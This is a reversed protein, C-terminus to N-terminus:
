RGKPADGRAPVMRYTEETVLMMPKEGPLRLDNVSVLTFTTPGRGPVGDARRGRLAGTPGFRTETTPRAAVRASKGRYTVVFTVDAGLRGGIPDFDIDADDALRVSYTEGARTKRRLVYGTGIKEGSAMELLNADFRVDAPGVQDIQEWDGDASEQYIDIRTRLHVDLPRTLTDAVLLGTAVFVIAGAIALHRIGRSRSPHRDPDRKM